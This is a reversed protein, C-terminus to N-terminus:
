GLLKEAAALDEPSNVGVVEFPDATATVIDAGEEIAMEILDTLYYEGSANKNKIEPLHEWLWQASFAFLSPNVEKIDLEEESADKAERIALIRGTSDRVIRGWTKFTTYDKKYNPVKTTIMAIATEHEAHLDNLKNLTEGSIFPHDGNLVIIREADNAADQACSVANGTGLQEAQVSYECRDACITNFDEITDPAVIVIPRSDIGSDEIGDLLHEIMPRSAIEVLPKAVDAGMRKGKGAAMVIIRTGM